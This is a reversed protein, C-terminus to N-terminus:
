QRAFGPRRGSTELHCCPLLVYIQDLSNARWLEGIREIGDIEDYEQRGAAVGWPSYSGRAWDISSGSM